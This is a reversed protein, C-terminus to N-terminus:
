RDVRAQPVATPAFAEAALATRLERNQLGKGRAVEPITAFLTAPALHGIDAGVAGRGALLTGALILAIALALGAIMASGAIMAAPRTGGSPKVEDLPKDLVQFDLADAVQLISPLVNSQDIRSKMDTVRAKTEEVMLRLQRQQYEDPPAFPPKHNQEFADLDRQAELAQTEAVGLQARYFTAAAATAATRTAALHEQRLALAAVVMEPGTNADRARYSLRFLNTGLVEVRFRKSISQLFVREDTDEPRRISTRRVIEQLFSRTQLLQVLVGAQQAAPTLFSTLGPDQPSIPAFQQSQRETWITADAEFSTVYEAYATVGGPIWTLALLIVIIWRYRRATELYRRM